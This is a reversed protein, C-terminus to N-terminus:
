PPSKPTSATIQSAQIPRWPAAPPHSLSEALFRKIKEDSLAVM